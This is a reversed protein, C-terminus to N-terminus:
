LGNQVESNGSSIYFHNSQKDHLKLSVLEDGKQKGRVLVCLIRPTQFLWICGPVAVEPILGFRNSLDGAIALAEADAEAATKFHANGALSAICSMTINRTVVLEDFARYPRKPKYLFGDEQKVFGEQPPTRYDGLCDKALEVGLLGKLKEEVGHYPRFGPTTIAWEAFKVAYTNTVSDFELSIQDTFSFEKEADKEYGFRAKLEKNAMMTREGPLHLANSADPFFDTFDIWIREEPRDFGRSVVKAMDWNKFEKFAASFEENGETVIEGGNGLRLMAKVLDYTSESVEFKLEVYMAGDLCAQKGGKIVNDSTTVYWEGCDLGIQLRTEESDLTGDKDADIGFCFIVENTPTGKFSFEVSDVYNSSTIMAIPYDFSTETDPFKPEPLRNSIVIPSGALLLCPLLLIPTALLKKM